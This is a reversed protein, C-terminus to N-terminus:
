GGTRETEPTSEAMAGIQVDIEDPLVSISLGGNADISALPEVRYTGATTLAGLNVAVRIGSQTLNALLPQSGTILVTVEQPLLQATLGDRLGIIEVPVRDYQRTTTPATVGVSVRITRGSLILLRPDPLQATVDVVFDQRRGSLDIPTTLITDPLTTLVESPGSVIISTPEYDFNPSLVYGEPLQGILDPLVRLERVDSRASIEVTVRIVSPSLNVGTVTQGELNVPIPRIDTEFTSRANSLDLPLVAKAVQEVRSAPGTILVQLADLRIGDLRVVPAPEANVLAEVTKLQSAELELTVTIQSPSTNIVTARRDPAVRSSLPITYEGPGLGALDAWVQVDEGSMLQRVSRPSRLQVQATTTLENQNTILLGTDPTFRIPVREVMRWTEIPDSQTTATVWVFISLGLAILFWFVNDIITKRLPPRTQM